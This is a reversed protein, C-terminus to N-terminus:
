YVYIFENSNLLALCVDALAQTRADVDAPQLDPVFDDMAYLRETFMFKEGTNEEVAERQIETPWRHPSHVMDKRLRQMVRWHERCLSLEDDTPGRGYVLLYCSRVTQEDSDTDRLTRHALALARNYTTQSNLLSFVQPTVTSTERRECSFDPSPENFVERFPDRLGRLKRAYISRRHRQHPLPNPVWAAAFAGMVQRPQLAVEPVIEPRNPIGGLELNLEGTAVLTADRIEEASLRRPRFTAYFVGQPDKETVLGRDPHESSRRYAESNMISRHMAKLSWGREVLTAALWDLLEPHTPHGGTAGFNNPNAALPQQFHWLWLRNAIARTTLPNDPHAVWDAFARRRGEIDTPLPGVQQNEVDSLERASAAEDRVFDTAVVFPQLGSLGGPSIPPGPSFPDGGLLIATQELEGEEWRREPVRLPANVSRLDPTRGSYVSFAFPEYRELEWRLRELGKQAVRQNGFDAPTFGHLKPPFQDEPVQRQLLRRRVEAFLSGNTEHSSGHLEEVIRKWREHWPAADPLRQQFWTQSSKLMQQDLTRLTALHDQQQRELTEREQFGSLNESPLFAAPREALQTTAFVAQVAYYDATPVPDFKHDHCRACQLSQALFTEGVSNTVDDLFRQRAVKPVEMGTLEWPGMRLFGTAILGEPDDPDLEDGAIQERVFQDYPKDTNFSRVVYDRYRWASGREYDNALGSSDAYRVVDLWHQAMREGYHPSALLREVVKQFAIADDDPDKVFAHIEDPLPPLGTLDFAARRILTTRDAPPAVPLDDPRRAALLADIIESGLPSGADTRKDASTSERVSPTSRPWTKDAPVPQYAWLNEPRYRRQNWAPSLGERTVVTVGDEASWREAHDRLIVQRQSETPWTGAAAIWERLWQRQQGSLQDAEKPPMASWHDSTRTVALMLPSSDPRGPVIAPEGSDGGQLLGQSTRLDLGGQLDTPDAGHCALCKENLLPEIRRVWLLAAVDENEEDEVGSLERNDIGLLFASGLILFLMWKSLWRELMM